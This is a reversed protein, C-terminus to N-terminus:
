KIEELHVADILCNCDYPKDDYMCLLAVVSMRLNQMITKQKADLDTLAMDNFDKVLNKRAGDFSAEM